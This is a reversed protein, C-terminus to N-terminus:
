CGVGILGVTIYLIFKMCEKHSYALLVLDVRVLISSSSCAVSFYACACAFVFVCARARKCARWFSHVWVLVCWAVPVVVGCACVVGYVRVVRRVCVRVCVCVCACVGRRM